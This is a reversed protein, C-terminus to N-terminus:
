FALGFFLDASAFSVTQAPVAGSAFFAVVTAFFVLKGVAGIAVFLRPANGSWACWGYGVGFLGIFEAVTWAYLPDPGAPFGGLDHALTSLPAFILAGVVNM